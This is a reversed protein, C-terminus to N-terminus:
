QCYGTFNVANTDIDLMLLDKSSSADVSTKMAVNTSFIPNSDITGITIAVEATTANDLLAEHNLADQVWLRDVNQWEFAGFTGPAAQLKGAVTNIACAVYTHGNQVVKSAMQCMPDASRNPFPNYILYSYLAGFVYAPPAPIATAWDTRMEHPICFNPKAAPAVPETVVGPDPLQVIPAPNFVVAQEPPTVPTTVPAPSPQTIITIPSGDKVPECAAFVILASLAMLASFLNKMTLNGKKKQDNSM